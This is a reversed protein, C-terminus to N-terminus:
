SMLLPARGAVASTRDDLLAQEEREFERRYEHRAKAELNNIVRLDRRALIWRERYDDLEAEKQKCVKIAEAQRELGIQHARIFAVQDAGRISSRREAVLLEELEQLEVRVQALAALAQAHDNLAKSFAERARMEGLARVTEVSRLPFRFKKM